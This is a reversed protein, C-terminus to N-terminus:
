RVILLLPPGKLVKLVGGNCTANKYVMQPLNASTYEGAPMQVGDIFLRKVTMTVGSSLYIRSDADMHLNAQPSNVPEVTGAYDTRIFATGKLTLTQLGTFTRGVPTTKGSRNEYTIFGGSEVTLNTVGGFRCGNFVRFQCRGGVSINGVMASNDRGQFAQYFTGEDQAFRNELVINMNGYFRSVCIGSASQLGEANFTITSVGQKNNNYFMEGWKEDASFDIDCDAGCNAYTFSQSSGNLYVMCYGAHGWAKNFNMQYSTARLVGSTACSVDFHFQVLRGIENEPSCLEVSGHESYANGLFLGGRATVQRRFSAKGWGVVHLPCDGALLRGNLTLAVDTAAASDGLKVVFKSKAVDPLGPDVSIDGNWTASKLLLIAPDDASSTGGAFRLDNAFAGNAADLRVQRVAASGAFVVTGSGFAGGAKAVLVGNSVIVGGTFDNGANALTLTAGDAVVFSGCGTVKETVLLDNTVIKTGCLEMSEVFRVGLPELTGEGFPCDSTTTNVYVALSSGNWKWARAVVGEPPERPVEAPEALLLDARAAIEAAVRKLKPWFSALRDPHEPLYSFNYFVLGNAGGAIAQWAMNRMEQETPEREPRLSTHWEWCFGQVVQWIPRMSMLGAREMRMADTVTSVPRSSVPYPDCGFVDVSGVYHRTEGPIDQACWVPHDPDLSAILGRRGELAPVMSTPQEDFAYWALLSSDGKYKNVAWIVNNSGRDATAYQTTIDYIVKIGSSRFMQMQEPTPSGYQMLCNFASERYIALSDGTMQGTYMGLPFFPRGNVVTRGFRDFTVKRSAPEALRVFTMSASGLLRDGARLVCSVDNTGVPFRAVEFTMRAEDAAAFVGEAAFRSGDAGAVEFTAAVPGGDEPFTEPTLSAAFTVEGESAENRYADCYVGVVPAAVFREYFVNDFAFRGALSDSVNLGLQATAVNEPMPPTYGDVFMWGDTEKRVSISRSEGLYTGAADRWGVTVFAPGSGSVSEAKVWAGFHYTAGPEVPASQSCVGNADSPSSRECLAGASGDFGVGREIRFPALVYWGEPKGGADFSEFDGNRIDAAAFASVSFAAFALGAVM